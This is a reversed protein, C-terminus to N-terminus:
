KINAIGTTTHPILGRCMVGESRGSKLLNSIENFKDFLRQKMKKMYWNPEFQM